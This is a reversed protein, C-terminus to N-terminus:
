ESFEVNQHQPGLQRAARGTLRQQGVARCVKEAETVFCECSARELGILISGALKGAVPRVIPKSRGGRHCAPAYGSRGLNGVDHLPQDVLYKADMM